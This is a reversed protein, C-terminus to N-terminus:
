CLEPHNLPMPDAADGTLGESLNTIHPMAVRFPQLDIQSQDLDTNGRSGHKEPILVSTTYAVQRAGRRM